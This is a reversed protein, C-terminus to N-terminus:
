LKRYNKWRVIPLTLAEPFTSVEVGEVGTEPYEDPRAAFATRFLIDWLPIWVAFNRDQHEPRISHHIRHYQPSTLLWWFKGFGVRLNSHVFHSWILPMVAILTIDTQPLTFLLTIPTAMLFPTLMHEFIHVRNTTTVNLATDTHHLLHVQWLVRNVHQLRHFWYFFFDVIFAGMVMAAFALPIRQNAEFKIDFLPRWGTWRFIAQALLVQLPAVAVVFLIVLVGYAINLGRNSVAQQRAPLLRELVYGAILAAAVVQFVMRDYIAGAYQYFTDLWDVEQGGQGPYEYINVGFSFVGLAICVLVLVVFIAISAWFAGSGIAARWNPLSPRSIEAVSAPDFAM